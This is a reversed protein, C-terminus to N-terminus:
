HRLLNRYQDVMWKSNTKMDYQSAILEVNYDGMRQRHGPLDDLVRGVQRAITAGSVEPLIYGNVGDRIVEEYAPLDSLVPVMRTAMAELVSAALLDGTGVCVYVDSAHMLSIIREYSQPGLFRVSDTIGLELCRSQLSELLRAGEETPPPYAFWLVCEPRQELLRIYGDLVDTVRWLPAIHRSHLLVPTTPEVGLERRLADRRAEPEEFISETPIGWSRTVLKHSVDMGLHQRFYGDIAATSAYILNARRAALQAVTRLARSGAAHFYLDPGYATTVVPRRTPILAFLGYASMGHVDVVDPDIDRVLKAVAPLMSAYRLHPPLWAPPELSHVTFGESEGGHLSIIHVEHGLETLFSSRLRVPAYYGRAIYCIKM